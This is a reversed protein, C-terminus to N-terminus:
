TVGPPTWLVRRLAFPAVRGASDKKELASLRVGEVRAAGQDPEPVHDEQTTEKRQLATAATAAGVILL